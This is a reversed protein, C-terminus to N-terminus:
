PLAVLITCETSHVSLPLEQRYGAFWLNNEEIAHVPLM